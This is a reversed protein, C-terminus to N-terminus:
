RSANADQKNQSYNNGSRSCLNPSYLNNQDVMCISGQIYSHTVHAAHMCSTEPASIHMFNQETYSYSAVQSYTENYLLLQVYSGLNLRAIAIDYFPQSCPRELYRVNYNYSAITIAIVQLQVSLGSWIFKRNGTWRGCRNGTLVMLDM